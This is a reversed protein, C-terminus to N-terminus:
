ETCFKCRLNTIRFGTYVFFFPMLAMKVKHKVAGWHSLFQIGCRQLVGTPTHQATHRMEELNKIRM